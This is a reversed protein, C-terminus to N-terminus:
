VGERGYDDIGGGRGRRKLRSAFLRLVKSFGDEEKCCGRRGVGLGAGKEGGGRQIHTHIDGCM